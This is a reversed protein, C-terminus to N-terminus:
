ISLWPKIGVWFASVSVAGVLRRVRSARHTFAFPYRVDLELVGAKQCFTLTRHKSANLLRSTPDTVMKVISQGRQLLERFAKPKVVWNVATCGFAM